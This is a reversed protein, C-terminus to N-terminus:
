SETGPKFCFIVPRGGFMSYWVVAKGTPNPGGAPDPKAEDPVPYWTGDIRVEYSGSMSARWEDDDLTHGDGLGCCSMGSTLQHQSQFWRAIPSDPDIGPPPAALAPVALCCFWALM